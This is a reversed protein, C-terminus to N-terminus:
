VDLIYEKLFNQQFNSLPKLAVYYAYMKKNTGFLECPFFVDYEDKITIKEAIDGMKVIMPLSTFSVDKKNETYSGYLVFLDGKRIPTGESPATGSAM